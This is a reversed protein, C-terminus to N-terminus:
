CYYGERMKINQLDSVMETKEWNYLSVRKPVQFLRWSKPSRLVLGTKDLEQQNQGQIEWAGYTQSYELTYMGTYNSLMPILM